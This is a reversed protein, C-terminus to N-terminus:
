KKVAAIQAQSLDNQKLVNLATTTYFYNFVPPNQDYTVYKITTYDDVKSGGMKANTMTVMKNMHMHFLDIEAKSAMKEQARIASTFIVSILFIILLDVRMGQYAAPSPKSRFIYTFM